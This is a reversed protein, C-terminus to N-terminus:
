PLIRQTIIWRDTRSQPAMKEDVGSTVSVCETRTALGTELDMQYRCDLTNEIKLHALDEPTPKRMGTPQHATLALLVERTSRSASEPDLEQRYHIVAQKRDKDVSELELSQNTVIPGGGLPNRVESTARNPETLNLVANQPVAAMGQEKLLSAGQEPTMGQFTKRTDELAMNGQGAPGKVAAALVSNIYAQWNLIRVPTLADDTEYTLDGTEAAAKQLVAQAVPDLDDPADTGTLVQHVRYGANLPAIDQRYRFIVTKGAMVGTGQGSRSRAITFEMKAASPLKLATEYDAAWAQGRMAVIMSFAAISNRARGM